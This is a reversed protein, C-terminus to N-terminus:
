NCNASTTVQFDDLLIKKMGDTPFPQTAGGDGV